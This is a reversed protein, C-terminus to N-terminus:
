PQRYSRLILGMNRNKGREFAVLYLGSRKAKNPGEFGRGEFGAKEFTKSKGLM